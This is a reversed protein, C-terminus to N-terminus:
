SNGLERLKKVFTLGTHQVSVHCDTADDIGSGSSGFDESFCSLGKIPHQYVDIQTINRSPDIVEYVGESDPLRDEALGTKNRSPM